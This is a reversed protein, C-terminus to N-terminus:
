ICFSRPVAWQLAPIVVNGSRDLTEQIIRTLSEIYSTTRKHYRNGYTSEMVM